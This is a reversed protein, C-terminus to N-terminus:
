KRGTLCHRRLPCDACRPQPRCCDKGLQVLLAHYENFLQEDPPLHAMFYAQAAAYTCGRPLLGLREGSRRTYADIVFVARGYGYLLICDATEPGIGRIDLLQARLVATSVREARRLAGGQMGDLWALLARLTKTKQNYYGAPRLCRRLEADPMARLGAVSLARARRLNALAKEVSTWSTNQTLVAGVMMEWRTRAPWWHQPGYAAFLIRYVQRVHLPM